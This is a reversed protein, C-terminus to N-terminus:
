SLRTASSSTAFVIAITKIDRSIAREKANEMWSNGTEVPYGPNGAIAIAAGEDRAKENPREEKERENRGSRESENSGPKYV